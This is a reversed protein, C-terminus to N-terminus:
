VRVAPQKWRVAAEGAALEDIELLAPAFQHALAPAAALALLLACLLRRMM